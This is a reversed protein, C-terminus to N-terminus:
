AFHYYSIIEQAIEEPALRATDITLHDKESFRGFMEPYESAFSSWHEKTSIKGKEVRDKGEVRNKLVDEPATLQVLCVDGGNAEVMAIAKKYFEQYNRMMIVGTMIMDMQAQVAEEVIRLRFEYELKARIPSELGFIERLPNLIMHNHFLPIKLKESLIKAITLKGVAPPGYLLILKM